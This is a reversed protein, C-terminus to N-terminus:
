QEENIKTHESRIVIYKTTEYIGESNKSTNRRITVNKTSELSIAPSPCQNIMNGEILLNRAGISEVIGGGRREFVFSIVAQTANSDFGSNKIFNNRIIIESAYLGNPWQTENHFKIANSSCGDFSTNEIIGRKSRFVCGYRRINTFQSNRIAFEGCSKSRNWIQTRDQLRLNSAKADVHGTSERHSVNSAMMTESTIMEDPLEHNFWVKYRGDNQKEVKVVKTELSIKGKQPEFFSVNDGVDFNFFTEECIAANKVGQPKSAAIAIPRAYLAVGDDGLGQIHNKEIWPGIVHERIHIGDANGMMWNGEQMITKCHLINFNSGKISVFGMGGWGDTTLNYATVNKSDAFNVFMASGGRFHYVFRGGVEWDTFDGGADLQISYSKENKKEFSNMRYFSSSKTKLRGDITPDLLIFIDNKINSSSTFDPSDQELKVEVSRKNQDVSEIYGQVRLAGKKYSVNFGNISINRCSSAEILGQYRNLFYINVDTGEIEINSVNQLQILAGSLKDGIYYDGKKVIIKVSKGAKALKEAKQVVSQFLETNDTNNDPSIYLVKQFKKITFSKINTWESSDGGYTINKVRWYYTGPNFPLDHVYRSLYVTDQDILSNFLKDTSIQIIYRIPQGMDEFQAPHDEWDFNPFRYSDSSTSYAQQTFAFLVVNYIIVASIYKRLKLFDTSKFKM